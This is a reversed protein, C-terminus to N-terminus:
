LRDDHGVVNSHDAVVEIRLGPSHLAVHVLQGTFEDIATVFDDDNCVGVSAPCTNSVQRISELDVVNREEDDISFRGKRGDEGEEGDEPVNDNAFADLNHMSVGTQATQAMLGYQM